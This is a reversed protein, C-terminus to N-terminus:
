LPYVFDTDVYTLIMILKGFQDGQKGFGHRTYYNDQSLRGM